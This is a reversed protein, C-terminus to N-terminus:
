CCWLLMLMMLLLLRLCRPLVIVVMQFIWGGGECAGTNSNTPHPGCPPDDAGFECRQTHPWPENRLSNCLM